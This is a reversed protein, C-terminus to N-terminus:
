RRPASRSRVIVRGIPRRPHAAILHPSCSGRPGCRPYLYLGPRIYSFDQPGYYHVFDCYPHCDYEARAPMSGLVLLAVAALLRSM